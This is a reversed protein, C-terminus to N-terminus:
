SVLGSLVLMRFIGNQVAPDLALGALKGSDKTQFFPYDQSDITVTVCELKDQPAITDNAVEWVCPGAFYAVECIDGPTGSGGLNPQFIGRKVTKKIVGIADENDAAGLVQPMTPNTNSSDLKVRAGAVLPTAQNPSLIASFFRNQSIALDVDGPAVTQRFQNIYVTPRVSTTM